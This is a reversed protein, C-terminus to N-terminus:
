SGGDERREYKEQIEKLRKRLEEMDERDNIKGSRKRLFAIRMKEFNRKLSDPDFLFTNWFDDKVAFRLVNRIERLPYLSFLYQFTLDYKYKQSNFVKSNKQLYGYFGKIFERKEPDEYENKSEKGDEVEAEVIEETKKDETNKFEETVTDNENEPPTQPPIQKIDEAKEEKNEKKSKIIFKIKTYARKEKILEYDIEIDTNENIQKKAVELVRRKLDPTNKYKYEIELMKKFEKIDLERWGTDEYQKLMLYIRIAYSSTLPKINYIRFRTFLKKQAEKIYPLLDEDIKTYLTGDKYKTKGLLQIKIFNNPNEIDRITIITKMLEEIIEERHKKNLNMIDIGVKEKIENRHVIVFSSEDPRAYLWIALLIKKADLSLSFISNVLSNHLRVIEKSDSNM